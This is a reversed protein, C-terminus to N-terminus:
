LHTLAFSRLVAHRTRIAQEDWDPIGDSSKSAFRTVIEKQSVFTSRSYNEAREKFPKKGKSAGTSRTDLVLNGLRHLFNERFPRAIEDVNKPDWRTPANLVIEDGEQAFIHDLGYQEATSTNQVLEKWSLLQERSGPQSRLHNEYKWLVYRATRGGHYFGADDLATALRAPINWDSRMKQIESILGTFDGSFRNAISRLRSEGTDARVGALSSASAFREMAQVARNFDQPTAPQSLRWAKLLLPWFIATRGLVFLSAIPGADVRSRLIKLTDGYSDALQASFSKIFGAPGGEALENPSALIHRILEKPKRWGDEGNLMIHPLYAACHYGLVQDEGPALIEGEIAEATRYLRAFQSQVYHLDNETNEGGHLYLGHMLYSKLAELNTLRKGRDNQFEFIQTAEIPSDVAYVLITSTFLRDLLVELQASPINRVERDFYRKAAALRRQSPTICDNTSANETGTIFREFFSDDEEVTKFLRQKGRSFLLGHTFEEVTEACTPDAALQKLVSAAFITITTLRQQGDVIDYQMLRAHPQSESLTLLVTGLYYPRKSGAPHSLLDSLFDRLHPEAVWAYARQYHPVRFSNAAFIGGVTNAGINIPM